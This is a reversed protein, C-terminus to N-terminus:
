EGDDPTSAAHKRMIRHIEVWGGIEPEVRPNAVWISGDPCLGYLLYDASTEIQKFQTCMVKTPPPGAPTKVAQDQDSMFTEPPRDRAYVSAGTMLLTVLALIQATGTM